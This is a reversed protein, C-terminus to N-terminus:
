GPIKSGYQPCYSATAAGIISGVSGDSLGVAKKVDAATQDLTGGAAWDQCVAHGLGIMTQDSGNAWTIGSQTLTHLYVDDTADANAIPATGLVLGGAWSSLM